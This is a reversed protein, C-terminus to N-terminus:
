TTRTVDAAVRVKGILLTSVVAPSQNDVQQFDYKYTGPTLTGTTSPQMTMYVIGSNSDPSTAISSVQAAGPDANDTNTKLTLWYTLGTIDIPNDNADTVTFKTTWTDGRAFPKLDYSTFSM